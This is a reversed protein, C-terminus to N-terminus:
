GGHSAQEGRDAEDRRVCSGSESRIAQSGPKPDSGVPSERGDSGRDALDTVCRGGRKSMIEASVAAVALPIAAVLLVPPAPCSAGWAAARRCAAQALVAM